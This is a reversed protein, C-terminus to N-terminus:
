EGVVEKLHDTVRAYMEGLDWANREAQSLKEYIGYLDCKIYKLLVQSKPEITNDKFISVTDCVGTKADVSDPVTDATEPEKEKVEKHLFKYVTASKIDLKDAIEYMNLGDKSLELIKEKQEETLRNYNRKRYLPKKGISQLFVDVQGETLKATKAIEKVTMGKGHCAAIQTKKEQSLEL